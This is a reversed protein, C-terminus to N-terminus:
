GAGQVAREVAALRKRQESVLGAAVRRDEEAEAAAKAAAKRDAAVLAREAEMKARHQELDRDLQAREAAFSDSAKELKVREAQAEEAARKHAAAAQRQDDVRKRAAPESLLDHLLEVVDHSPLPPDDARNAGLWNNRRRDGLAM